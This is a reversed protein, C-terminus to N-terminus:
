ACNWHSYNADNTITIYNICALNIVKEKEYYTVYLEGNKSTFSSIRSMRMKQNHCSDVACCCETDSNDSDRYKLFRVWLCNLVKSCQEKYLEVIKVAYQAKEAVTMESIDYCFVHPNNGDSILPVNSLSDHLAM